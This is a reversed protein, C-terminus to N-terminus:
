VHKKMGEHSDTFGLSHYFNKAVVRKKDTTLQIISAGNAKGYAIAQNLMWQGINKSRFRKNIRVAEINLRTSGTFTLSPMLTLHCTGIIETNEEVVMLYQNSDKNIVHFADIYKQENIDSTTERTQGLEDDALLDIIAVLDALEARRHSLNTSM